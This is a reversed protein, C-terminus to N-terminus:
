RIIPKLVTKGDRVVVDFDIQRGKHVERLKAATAELKRSLGEVSVDGSEQTQSRSAVFKAHLQRVRDPQLSSPAGADPRAAAAPAPRAAVPPRSGSPRPPERNSVPRISPRPPERNSVPHAAPTPAVAAAAPPQAPATAKAPLPPPKAGKQPLPPPGKPAAPTGAEASPKQPLPPPAARQPQAGAAAGPAAQATPKKPLPPPVARATAGPKGGFLGGGLKGSLGLGAGLQLTAGLPTTPPEAEFGERLEAFPDETAPRQLAASLAEEAQRTADRARQSVESAAAEAAEREEEVRGLQAREHATLMVEVNGVSREARLVHRKYTGADIERLIRQWQMQFTNLRQIISQLKFRKATNRIQQKRLAQIRRDVEKHLVAPPIKEIGMFYQEYLNRLREVRLELEELAVDLEEIAM